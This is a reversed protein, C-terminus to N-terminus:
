QGLNDNAGNQGPEAGIFHRRNGRQCAPCQNQEGDHRQGHQALAMMGGLGRM